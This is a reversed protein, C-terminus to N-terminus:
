LKYRCSHSRIVAAKRYFTRMSCRQQIEDSTIYGKDALSKIIWALIPDDNKKASEIIDPYYTKM